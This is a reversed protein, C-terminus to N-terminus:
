LSPVSLPLCVSRKTRAHLSQVKHHSHSVVVHKVPQMAVKCTTYVSIHRRPDCNCVGAPDVPSTPLATPLPTPIPTYTAVFDPADPVIAAGDEDVSGEDVGFGETDLWAAESPSYAEALAPENQPVAQEDMEYGADLRRGPSRLQEAAAHPCIAIVLLLLAATARTAM